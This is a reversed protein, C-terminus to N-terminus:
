GCRIPIFDFTLQATSDAEWGAAPDRFECLTHASPTGHACSSNGSSTTHTGLERASAGKRKEGAVSKKALVLANSYRIYM